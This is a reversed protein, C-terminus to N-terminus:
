AFKVHFDVFNNDIQEDGDKRETLFLINLHSSRLM